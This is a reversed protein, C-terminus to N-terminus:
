TVFYHPVSFFADLFVWVEHLDKHANIVAQVIRKIYVRIFCESFIDTCNRESMSGHLGFGQWFSPIHLSTCPFTWHSHLGGWLPVNQVPWNRTVIAHSAEYPRDLRFVVLQLWRKNLNQVFDCSKCLKMPCPFSQIM